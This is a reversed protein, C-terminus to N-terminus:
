RTGRQGWHLIRKVLNLAAFCAHGETQPHTHVACITQLGGMGVQSAIGSNAVVGHAECADLYLQLLNGGPVQWRCM